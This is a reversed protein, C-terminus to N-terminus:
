LGNGPAASIGIWSRDFLDVSPRSKRVRVLYSCPRDVPQTVNEEHLLAQWSVPFSARSYFTLYVEYSTLVKPKLVIRLAEAARVTGFFFETDPNGLPLYHREVTRAPLFNRYLLMTWVYYHLCLYFFHDGINDRDYFFYRLNAHAPEWKITRWQRELIIVLSSFTKASNM